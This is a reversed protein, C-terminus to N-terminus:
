NPSVWTFQRSRHLHYLRTPNDIGIKQRLEAPLQNFMMVTSEWRQPGKAPEPYHQDSGIVFRDPFDQFLKLWEPKLKGSGGETLPSNTGVEVPDIKIEMFLNEHAQLLRRSLEVTRDGTNDWGEHAWVIRAKPNHSLLREFAAINDHLQAPNPPSKENSPVAMPKSVAEMHFDIPLGGHEASVDALLLFLPHDAPAYEYYSTPTTAFHEATMEGFGSAGQKVIEEAREKFKKQIEPGSNKSHVAEQVMVNLTGGGGLFAFKDRHDKEAAILVEDDFRTPDDPTFPSPLFIIMRANESDMAKLAAQISGATDKPELHAHVEIFPSAAVVMPEPPAPRPAPRAAAHIHASLLFGAAVALLLTTGGVANGLCGQTEGNAGRKFHM